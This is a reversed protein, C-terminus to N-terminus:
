RRSGAAGRAAELEGVAAREEEVLDALQRELRLRLQEAHQLLLSNSRTPPVRVRRPPRARSIAAVFRSRPRRTSRALEALVKVVPQVDERDVTGGSRSRRSSMGSSTLQKRPLAARLSPLDKSPTAGVNM